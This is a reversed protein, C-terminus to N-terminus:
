GAGVPQGVGDGGHQHRQRHRHSQHRKTQTSYETTALPNLATLELTHHVCEWASM